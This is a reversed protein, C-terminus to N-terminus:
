ISQLIRKRISICLSFYSLTTPAPRQIPPRPIVPGWSFFEVHRVFSKVLLLRFCHSAFQMRTLEQNFIYWDTAILYHSFQKHLRCQYLALNWYGKTNRTTNQNPSLNPFIQQVSIPNTENVHTKKWVSFTTFRISILCPKWCLMGSVAALKLNKNLEDRM